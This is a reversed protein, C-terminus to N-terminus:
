YGTFLSELFDVDKFKGYKRVKEFESDRIGEMHIEGGRYGVSPLKFSANNEIIDDVIIKVSERFVKKILSLKKHTFREKISKCKEYPFRVFIDNLSCAYGIALNRM